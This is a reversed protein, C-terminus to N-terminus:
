SSPSRSRGSSRTTWRTSRTTPASRADGHHSRHFHRETLRDANPFSFGRIMTANVMTFMTAVACIGLALVFVSLAAFGKDKVLVRLGIRLDQRFTEAFM